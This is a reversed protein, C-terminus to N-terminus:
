NITNAGVANLLSFSITGSLLRLLFLLLLFHFIWALRFTRWSCVEDKHVNIKREMVIHTEDFFLSKASEDPNKSKVVGNNFAPIIKSLFIFFSM